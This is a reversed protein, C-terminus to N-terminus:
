HSTKHKNHIFQKINSLNQQALQVFSPNIDWSISHLGLSMAALHISGIGGFLDAIIDDPKCFAFAIRFYIEPTTPAPHSGRNLSFKFFNLTDLEWVNQNISQFYSFEDIKKSLLNLPQIKM